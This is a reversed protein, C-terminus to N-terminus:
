CWQRQHCLMTHSPEKQSTSPLDFFVDSCFQVKLVLRAVAAHVRTQPKSGTARPWAPPDLPVGVCVHVRLHEQGRLRARLVSRARQLQM